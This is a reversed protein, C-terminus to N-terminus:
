TKTIRVIANYDPIGSEPSRKHRDILVSAEPWHVQVSRPTIPAVFVKGAFEGVDSRLVVPDGDGVGLSSADLVNMYVSERVAGTLPDKKEHVMSNFQKGRRTTCVFSGDPVEVVPLPVVSFRAKGDPTGFSWDACLHPGGYQVSDGGERLDQIGDYLPVIRGIEERLAFADAYSLRDAIDPRVRRALDLLVDWEARAEGIRRGPVEPSLIIRRETSTETVGGPSEYRTAAPLIVVEEGDVLMQSSTVIDMHVRLPIRGLAQEVFKPEPLVELFNGGASFLVDLAGNGAADIMEPATMGRTTPVDFGWAHSMAEASEDSIALGGPFVTAYAGMEAGGQVGSHGRIPMLGCKDRGVFGKSLGLNVIARVNDEGYVHQTVGMSWVIVATKAEGLMSALDDMDQKTTGALRELSDWSQADLAAKLEDFGTTHEGIFAEDVLNRAVMSKLVGNLFGVDGGANIQFFRDTIKTGFLASEVNSPVWYRDMGPERYPNVCVVKTGAKRAHYLYKMSVPQNNAVNSGIFVILDSGIWDTYSCTTAAVGLGEKLAFTSPAHCVRAANDISNTGMARVAKAAAYYSENPMGRSTLYFGLRQPDTDRIRSAILDLADDWTTRTFGKEGRRRLMPYPLRGLNRLEESRKARLPEVDSLIAEDIAPMTNLSLLRLRVNCLHVEDMTWDRLGKTGLACGDCVGQRLIRWAYRLEHRNEKIAKWIELYNNPRGEGVGFPKKSAWLKPQWRGRLTRPTNARRSPGM